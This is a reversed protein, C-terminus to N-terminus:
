GWAQTKSYNIILKSDGHAFCEKLNRVTQDPWPAFCQNVYLLLSDANSLKLYARLFITLEAVTKNEDVTWKTQKMIPADGVAKLLVEVKGSESMSAACLALLSCSFLAREWPELMYLGTVLFYQRYYWRLAAGGTGGENGKGFLYGFPKRVAKDM